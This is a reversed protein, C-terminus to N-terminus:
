DRLTDPLAYARVYDVQMEARSGARDLNKAQMALDVIMYMPVKYEELTPFKWTEKRDFYFTVWRPTILVGYTHFDASLDVGAKVQKSVYWPRDGRYRLHVAHHLVNPQNGYAEVIDVEGRPTAQPTEHGTMTLLWFAPWTAPSMPLKARMEFYGYKQSFGKGDGSRTQILGSRWGQPLKVARITLVGGSVTYAGDPRPNQFKVAGFPAHVAAFWPGAGGDRTVRLSDFEDRFTLPFRSIDLSPAPEGRGGTPALVAALAVAACLKALPRM